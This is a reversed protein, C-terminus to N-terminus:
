NSEYFLLKCMPPVSSGSGKKQAILYFKPQDVFVCVLQVVLSLLLLMIPLTLDNM